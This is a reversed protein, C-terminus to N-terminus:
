KGCRSPPEDSLARVVGWIALAMCVEVSGYWAGNDVVEGIVAIVVGRATLSLALSALM